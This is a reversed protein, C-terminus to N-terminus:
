YWFQANENMKMQKKTYFFAFAFFRDSKEFNQNKIKFQAFWHDIKKAFSFCAFVRKFVNNLREAYYQKNIEFRKKFNDDWFNEGDVAMDRVPAETAKKSVFFPIREGKFVFNFFWLWFIRFIWYIKLFHYIYFILFIYRLCAPWKFWKTRERKCYACATAVSEFWHLAGNKRGTGRLVFNILFIRNKGYCLFFAFYM